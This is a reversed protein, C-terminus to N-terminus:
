RSGWPASWSRMRNGATAEKKSSSSSWLSCSVPCPERWRWRRCTCEVCSVIRHNWIFLVSNSRVRGTTLLPKVFVLIRKAAYWVKQRPFGVPVNPATPGWLGFCVRGSAWAKLFFIALAITLRFIVFAFFGRVRPGSLLPAAYHRELSTLILFSFNFRGVQHQLGCPVPPKDSHCLISGSSRTPNLCSVVSTAPGSVAQSLCLIPSTKVVKGQWAPM